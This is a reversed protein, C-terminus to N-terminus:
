PSFCSIAHEGFQARYFGYQSSYTRSNGLLNIHVFSHGQVNKDPTERLFSTMTLINIRRNPGM